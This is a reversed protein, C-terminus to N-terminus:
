NTLFANTIATEVKAFEPHKQIWDCKLFHEAEEVVIEASSAKELKIECLNIVTDVWQKNESTGENSLLQLIIDFTFLHADVYEDFVMEKDEIEALSLTKGFLDEITYELDTSLSVIYQVVEAWQRHNIAEPTNLVESCIKGLVYVEEESSITETFNDKVRSLWNVDNNDVPFFTSQETYHDNTSESDLENCKKMLTQIETLFDSPAYEELIKIPATVRQIHEQKENDDEIDGSIIWEQVEAINKELLDLITENRSNTTIDVKQQLLFEIVEMPNNQHGRYPLGEVAYHLANNGQQDQINKDIGIKEILASLSRINGSKASLFFTEIQKQSIDAM